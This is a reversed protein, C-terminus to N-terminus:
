RMATAEHEERLGLKELARQAARDLLKQFARCARREVLV